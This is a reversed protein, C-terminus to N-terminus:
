LESPMYKFRGSLVRGLPTLKGHYILENRRHHKCQNQHAKGPEAFPVLTGVAFRVPPSHPEPYRAPTKHGASFIGESPVLFDTKGPLIMRTECQEPSKDHQPYEIGDRRGQIVEQRCEGVGFWPRM